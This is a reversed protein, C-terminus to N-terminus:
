NSGQMPNCAEQVWRKLTHLEYWMGLSFVDLKLPLEVCIQVSPDQVLHAFHLACQCVPCGTATVVSPKYKSVIVVTAYM